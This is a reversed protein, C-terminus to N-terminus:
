LKRPHPPNERVFCFWSSKDFAFPTKGRFDPGDAFDNCYAIRPLRDTVFPVTRADRM